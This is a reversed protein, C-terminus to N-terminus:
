TIGSLSTIRPWRRPSGCSLAPPPNLRSRLPSAAAPKRVAKAFLSALSQTITL